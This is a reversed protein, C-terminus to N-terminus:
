RVVELVRLYAEWCSSLRRTQLRSPPTPVSSCNSMASPHIYQGPNVPRAGPFLGAPAAIVVGPTAILVAGHGVADLV